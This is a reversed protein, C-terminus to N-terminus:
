WEGPFIYNMVDIHVTNLNLYISGARSSPTYNFSGFICSSETSEIKLSAKVQTSGFPEITYLSPREVLKLNGKCCLNLNIDTLTDDTRNFIYITM